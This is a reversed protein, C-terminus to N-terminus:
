KRLQQQSKIERIQELTNNQIIVMEAVRIANQQMALANQAINTANTEAQKELIQIRRQADTQSAQTNYWSTAFAVLITIILTPVAKKFEM